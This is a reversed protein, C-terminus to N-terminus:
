WEHRYAEGAQIDQQMNEKLEEVSEYKREPRRFALFETKLQKGYLDGSYDYLYTEALVETGGVTPKRGLNTIGAYVSSDVWVRTYYVGFPPLLKGADPIQNVTPMGLTRGLAKGHIVTGTISYLFGQLYHVLPM